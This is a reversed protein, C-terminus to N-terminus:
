QAEELSECDDKFIPVKPRKFSGRVKVDSSDM